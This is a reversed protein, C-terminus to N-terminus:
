KKEEAKMCEFSDRTWRRYRCNYCTVEQEAFCEEEYDRRFGGCELAAEAAAEPADRGPLFLRGRKGKDWIKM